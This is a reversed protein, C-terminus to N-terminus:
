HRAACWARWAQRYAVEVSRTYAAPDMLPSKLLRPRLQGRLATLRPQEHACTTAIRLYDEPTRAIFATLGAHALISAGMRQVASGSEPALTITPVGMFLADCTTAAGPFPFSDLAIDIKAYTTLYDSYSQKGVFDLRHPNIQHQALDNRFLDRHSGALAHLLLRSNPVQVLLERWVAFAAPSVKFFPNLCGFTIFNNKDAPLPSVEPPAAPPQYCWYPGSLPLSRETYHGQHPSPDLHADTLRYDMTKLGTTGPYSLHTIQVPAPKRAFVLLRNPSSHARLDVLIDIHAQRIIEAVEEDNHTATIVWHDAHSQLRRTISDPAIVDAFCHIEFQTKDHHEFLPILFRGIPHDRFDSSVYGIKLRRDPNPATGPAMGGFLPEAFLRSWERHEDFIAKADLSPSAHLTFLLNSWAAQFYPNAAVANRYEAIAEDAM